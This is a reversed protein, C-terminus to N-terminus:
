LFCIQKQKLWLIRQELGALYRKATLPACCQQVIYDNLNVIDNYADASYRLVRMM